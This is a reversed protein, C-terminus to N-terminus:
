LEKMWYLFAKGVYLSEPLYLKFGAKQLNHFSAANDLSTYTIMNKFGNKKAWQTRVKIMRMHLGQGRACDLLGARSLFVTDTEFTLPHCMCFGVPYKESDSVIWYQSRSHHEYEDQPFTIKHLCRVLEVNNSQRIKMKDGNLQISFVM